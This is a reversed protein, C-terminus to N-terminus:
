KEDPDEASVRFWDCIGEVADLTSLGAFCSSYEAVLDLIVGADEQTIPLALRELIQKVIEDRIIEAVKM